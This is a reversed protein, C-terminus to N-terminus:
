MPKWVAHLTRRACRQYLINITRVACGVFQFNWNELRARLFYTPLARLASTILRVKGYAAFVSSAACRLM